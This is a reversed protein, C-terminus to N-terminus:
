TGPASRFAHALCDKSNPAVKALHRVVMAVEEVQGCIGVPCPPSQLHTIDKKTLVLGAPRTGCTRNAAVSHCVDVSAAFLCCLVKCRSRWLGQDCAAALSSPDHLQEKRSSSAQCPLCIARHCARQTM